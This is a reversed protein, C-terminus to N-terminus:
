DNDGRGRIRDIYEETSLGGTFDPDCGFFKELDGERYEPLVGFTAILHSGYAADTLTRRGDPEDLWCAGRVEKALRELELAVDEQTEAVITIEGSIMGSM